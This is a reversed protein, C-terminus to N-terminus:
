KGYVVYQVPLVYLGFMGTSTTHALSSELNINVSISWMEVM